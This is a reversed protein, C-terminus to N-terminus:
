TDLQKVNLWHCIAKHSSSKHTKGTGRLCFVVIAWHKYLWESIAWGIVPAWRTVWRWRLWRCCLVFTLSLPADAGLHNTPFKQTVLCCHTIPRPAQRRFPPFFLWLIDSSLFLKCQISSGTQFHGWLLIRPGSKWLGQDLGQLVKLILNLRDTFYRLAIM